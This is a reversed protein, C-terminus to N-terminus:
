IKELLLHTEKRGRRIHQEEPLVLQPSHTLLEEGRRVDSATYYPSFRYLSCHPYLKQIEEVNDYSLVWDFPADQLYSALIRHDEARYYDLYLSKGKVYYPPDLYVLLHREQEINRLFDLADRCEVRIDEKREGIAQIRRALDNRNFRCDIKYTAKAQQEESSGGIPGANLIGSRNTRSLFFVAFGLALSPTKETHLIKKQCRWEELTIPTQLVLEVLADTQEVVAQWFSFVGLNADNIIIREVAGSLLLNTAAGAGGAYPEVYCVNNLGNANILDIFFSTMLSKGGPYRLPTTNM